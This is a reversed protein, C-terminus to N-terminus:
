GASEDESDEVMLDPTIEWPAAKISPKKVDPTRIASNTLRLRTAISSYSRVEREIIKSIRDIDKITEPSPIDAPSLGEFMRDRINSFRNMADEHRCLAVALGYQNETIWGPETTTFIREWVRAQDETLETPADPLTKDLVANRVADIQESLISTM